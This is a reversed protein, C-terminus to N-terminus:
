CHLVDTSGAKLKKHGEKALKGNKTQWNHGDKSFNRTEKRDFLFLSGSPPKNSPEAAIQLKKYNRLIECVEAPSLWRHQAESSLKAIDAGYWNYAM